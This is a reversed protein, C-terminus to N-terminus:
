IKKLIKRFLYPFSLLLDVSTSIIRYLVLSDLMPDLPINRGPFLLFCAEFVGFGGPALPVILGVSWSLSFIILLFFMENHNVSHFKNVCVLFGMFKSLIFGLEFLFAKTPFFSIIKITKKFQYQSNPLKLVGVAKSKLSELSRLIFYILKSNLFILPVVLFLYIPSFIVGISALLFSACLMFYPEILTSYFALQPSSINKVFNFREFFHWIGGPVYKLANTLVYFSVLNRKIDGGGFWRVISEWAFANLYVSLICFLFSLFIIKRDKEFSINFLFHDHRSFFYICFYSLGILFFIKKLFGFNIKRLFESFRSDIKLKM